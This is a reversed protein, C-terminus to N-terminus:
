APRPAKGVFVLTKRSKAAWRRLALSLESQLRNCNDASAVDTPSGIALRFQQLTSIPRAPLTICSPPCRNHEIGMFRITMPPPGTSIRKCTPLTCSSHRMLIGAQLESLPTGADNYLLTPVAGMVHLLIITGIHPIPSLIV